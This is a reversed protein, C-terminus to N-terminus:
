QAAPRPLLGHSNFVLVQEDNEGGNLPVNKGNFSLEVEGANATWFVVKNTAHITKVDAPNMVGRVLVKGDSKIEVRASEKARVTVDFPAGGDAGTASSAIDTGSTRPSSEAAEVTHVTAATSATESRPAQPVSGSESPSGASASGAQGLAASGSLNSGATQGPSSPQGAAVDHARAPQQHERQRQQYLRWGGATGVIVVLLVLVPILPFGRQAIGSGAGYPNADGHTSSNQHAILRVDPPPDNAAHLYDAVAQEEDIGLHRAYARVYGKNFIGGPLLEFQEDELARLLRTGIKTAAAIEDLSIGRIERERRLREGFAGARTGTEEFSKSV